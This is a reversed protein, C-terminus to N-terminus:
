VEGRRIQAIDEAVKEPRWRWLDAVMVVTVQDAISKADDEATDDNAAIWGVADWYKRSYYGM